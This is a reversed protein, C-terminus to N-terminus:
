QRLAQQILDLFVEMEFPKALYWVVKSPLETLEQPHLDGSILLFPLSSDLIHWRQILDAGERANPDRTLRLNTIVVGLAALGVCERIAKAEPVTGATLVQYGELSLMEAVVRRLNELDEILLVTTPRM